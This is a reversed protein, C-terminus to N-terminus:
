INKILAKCICLMKDELYFFNFSFLTLKGEVPLGTSEFSFDRNIKECCAFSDHVLAINHLARYVCLTFCQGQILKPPEKYWYMGHVVLTM